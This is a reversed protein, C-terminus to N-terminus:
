LMSSQEVASSPVWTMFMSSNPRPHRQEEDSTTSEDARVIPTTAAMACPECFAEVSHERRSARAFLAPGV